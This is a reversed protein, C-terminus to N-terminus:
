RIRWDWHRILPPLINHAVYSKGM